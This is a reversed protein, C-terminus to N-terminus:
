GKPATAIVRELEAVSTPKAIHHAFGAASARERDQALVYGSLAVLVTPNPGGNRILRAVEYGSMGPLGLDCFIVNPRFARAAAIGSPGDFAVRVEHGLLELLTRLGEAIFHHDEIVLVRRAGTTREPLTSEQLVPPPALPIRVLVETGRDLGDSAAAVTGGHLEVISKVLALGLGLGPNGDLPRHARKFPVFLVDLLDAEIGVGTDRVRLVAAGDEEALSVAVRGRPPTFRLANSLLNGIVQTLRAPDADLWLSKAPLEIQCALDRIAFAAQHEELARGVLAGLELSERQLEITGRTIRTIDLLDDVLRTMHAVQRGVIARSRIASQSDGAALDLVALNACIAALPNRLEHSMAAIFDTKRADAESLATEAAKRETIDHVIGILRTPAGRSDYLPTVAVEGHRRGAPYISEEEWRVTRGTRIAERYHDLVMDCSPAPIVDRVRSGVVRERPLGMATLGGDSMSLFRFEEDPGVAVYFLIGPVHAYIAALERENAALQDRLREVISPNPETV